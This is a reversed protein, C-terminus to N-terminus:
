VSKGQACASGCDSESMKFEDRLKEIELKLKEASSMNDSRFYQADWSFTNTDSPKSSATCFKRAFQFLSIFLLMRTHAYREKLLSYTLSFSLM